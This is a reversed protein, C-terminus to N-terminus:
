AGTQAHVHQKALEIWPKTDAYMDKWPIRLLKWGNAKLCKDKRADREVYEPLRHFQGDIEIAIKKKVWAFDIAFKSVRFESQYNKDAFENEIVNMFFQEPYSPKRENRTKGILWGRGETHAKKMGVSIKAKAEATLTTGKIASPKGSLKLSAAKIRFDTDKTKGKNWAKRGERHWKEHNGIGRKSIFRDCIPCQVTGDALVM